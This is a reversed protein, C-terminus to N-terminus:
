DAEKDETLGGSNTSHPPFLMSPLYQRIERLPPYPASFARPDVLLVEAIVATVSPSNM